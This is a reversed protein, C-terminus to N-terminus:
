AFSDIRTLKQNSNKHMTEMSYIQNMRIIHSMEAHILWVILRKKQIGKKKMHYRKQWNSSGEDELPHLKKVVQKQISLYLHWDLM